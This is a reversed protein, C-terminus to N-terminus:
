IENILRQPPRRNRVPRKNFSTSTRVEPEASSGGGLEPGGCSPPALHLKETPQLHPNPNEPKSKPDPISPPPM